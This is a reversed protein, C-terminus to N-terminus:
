SPRRTRRDCRGPHGEGRTQALLEFLAQVYGLAGHATSSGTPIRDQGFARPGDAAGAAAALGARLLEGRNM